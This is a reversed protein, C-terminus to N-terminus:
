LVPLTCKRKLLVGRGTRDGLTGLACHLLWAKIQLLADTFNLRTNKILDTTNKRKRWILHTLGSSLKTVPKLTWSKNNHRAVPETEVQLKDAKSTM